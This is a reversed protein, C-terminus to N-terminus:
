DLDKFTTTGFEIIDKVAAIAKSIAVPEFHYLLTLFLTMGMVVGLTRLVNKFTLVPEETSKKLSDVAALVEKYKNLIAIDNDIISMLSKVQHHRIAQLEATYNNTLLILAEKLNEDINKLSLIKNVSINEETRSELTNNFLDDKLKNFNNHINDM